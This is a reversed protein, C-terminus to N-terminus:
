RRESRRDIDTTDPEDLGALLVTFVSSADAILSEGPPHFDDLFWQTALHLGAGVVTSGLIMQQSQPLPGPLRAVILGALATAFDRGAERYIADVRPSVGLVEVLHIRSKRTDRATFDLFGTLAATVLGSVTAAQAARGIVEDRLEQVIPEYVACLLSELDDFSEYFYRKILGAESSVSEITAGRYGATGFVEIAAEILRERREARRQDASAGRYSRTSPPM